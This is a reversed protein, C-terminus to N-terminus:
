GDGYLKKHYDKTKESPTILRASNYFENEEKTITGVLIYMDYEKAMKEIKRYAMNLEYFNVNASSKIDQPPYETLACEPFVLLRINQKAAETIGRCIVHLNETINAGVAFQYAGIKM